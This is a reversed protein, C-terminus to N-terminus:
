CFFFTNKPHDHDLNNKNNPLELNEFKRVYDGFINKQNITQNEGTNTLYPPRDATIVILPTKSLSSEIVAPFFNAVATGSTSIVVSPINSKKSIGMAFFSASREDIHSSCDFKLNKTFALTLPTNRSGPCICIRQIGMDAIINSVCEAWKFNMNVSSM